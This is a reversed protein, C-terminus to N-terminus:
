LLGSTKDKTKAIGIVREVENAELWPSSSAVKNRTQNTLLMCRIRIHMLCYTITCSLSLGWVPKQMKTRALANFNNGNKVQVKLDWTEEILSNIKNIKWCFIQFVPSSTNHKWYQSFWFRQSSSFSHEAM